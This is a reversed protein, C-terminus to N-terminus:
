KSGGAKQKSPQELGRGIVGSVRKQNLARVYRRTTSLQTHGLVDAVQTVRIEWGADEIACTLRHYTRTGGFALLHAGPKSVRLAATWFEIGPTGHDWGKGMFKLGYPPDTVVADVSAADMTAMVARCDGLRVQASM